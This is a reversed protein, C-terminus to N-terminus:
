MNLVFGFSFGFPTKDEEHFFSYSLDFVFVPHFVYFTGVNPAFVFESRLVLADTYIMDGEMLSTFCSAINKIAWSDNQGDSFSGTYVLKTNLRNIYLVAFWDAACQIETSTLVLSATGQLFCSEVPFLKFSLSLPLNYSGTTTSEIPLLRPIYFSCDLSVNSYTKVSDLVNSLNSLYVSDFAVGANFGLREFLGKGVYHVNGLRLGVNNRAFFMKESQDVPEKIRGLLFSGAYEGAVYFKDTFYIQSSFSLNDYNQKFGKSDFELSTGVSYRFLNTSTGGVLSFDLLASKSGINYGASFSYVPMGWPTSGTFTFGLIPFIYEIKDYNESLIKTSTQSLPLWFGKFLYPFVSYAKAEKLVSTDYLVSSQEIKSKPGFNEKQVTTVAFKLKDTDAVLVNNGDFFEAIYAVRGKDIKVPSFFGGSFDDQSLFFEVTSGLRGNGSEDDICAIGVRPMTGKQVYSFLIQTKEQTPVVSLGQVQMDDYPMPIQSSEKTNFDYTKIYYDLGDKTLYFLKGKDDCALALVPNDFPLEIQEVFILNEIKDKENKTVEFIKLSFNLSVNHVAAFYMKENVAEDKATFVVGKNLRKEPVSYSKGKKVDYIMNKYRPHAGNSDMYTITLYRGDQSVTMNRVASQRLLKKPEGYSGNVTSNKECCFVTRKNKDYFFIKGGCSVLLSYRQFDRDQIFPRIGDVNTPNSDVFPVDVSGAFDNWADKMSVGYVTKFISFYSLGKLNEMRHWYEVFKEQGYTNYIYQFFEGGFKYNYDAIYIDRAGTIEAFRPFKGEIKAQKVFHSTYESNLRGEGFRSEELVAVGEIQGSTRILAGPTLVDGFIKSLIEWFKNKINLTIAHTLEHRFTMLVDNAFVEMGSSPQTDYIVIQNYPFVSFYANFEDQATTLTVPMRFDHSLEYRGHLEEYISDANQVLVSATKESESSYIIDFYKTKAVKVDKQGAMIGEYCFASFFCLFCVFICVSKKALCLTPKDMHFYYYM